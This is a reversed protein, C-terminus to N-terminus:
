DENRRARAAMEDIITAIDAVDVNGNGNVDAHHPVRGLTDNGAIVYIVSAIDEVDVTGDGNVDGKLVEVKERVTIAATADQGATSVAENSAFRVTSLQANGSTANQGITVPLRLLEGNGLNNLNMNYLMFLHDGGDLTSVILEHGSAAAGKTIAAEDLTIGSPLSLNFQLATVANGISAGTVVLEAKAGAEAEIPAISLTQASASGVMATLVVLMNLLKQKM